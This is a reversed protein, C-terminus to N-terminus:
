LSRRGLSFQRGQQPLRRWEQLQTKQPSLPQPLPEWNGERPRCAHGTQAVQAAQVASRGGGKGARTSGSASLIGM